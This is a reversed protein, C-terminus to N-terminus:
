VFNSFDAHNAPKPVIPPAGRPPRDGKNEDWVGKRTKKVMVNKKMVNLSQQQNTQDDFPQLLPTRQPPSRPYMGDTQDENIYLNKKKIGPQLKLIIKQQQMQTSKITESETRRQLQPMSEKSPNNLPDFVEIVLKPVRKETMVGRAETIVETQAYCDQKEEKYTYEFSDLTCMQLVPRAPFVPIPILDRLRREEINKMPSEKQTPPPSPAYEENVRKKGHPSVTTPRHPAPQQPPVQPAKVSQKTKINDCDDDFTYNQRKTSGIVSRNIHRIINAGKAEDPLDSIDVEASHTRKHSIMTNNTRMADTLNKRPKFDPTKHQESNFHTQKTPLDSDDHCSRPSKESREYTAQPSKSRNQKPSRARQGNLHELRAVSLFSCSICQCDKGWLVCADFVPDKRVQAKRMILNVAASDINVQPLLDKNEKIRYSFNESLPDNDLGDLVGLISFKFGRMLYSSQYASMKKFFICILQRAMNKMEEDDKSSNEIIKIIENSVLNNHNANKLFRCLLVLADDRELRIKFKTLYRLISLFLPSTGPNSNLYCIASKVLANNCDVLLGLNFVLSREHDDSADTLMLPLANTIIKKFDLEDPFVKFYQYLLDLTKCRQFNNLRTFDSSEWHIHFPKIAGPGHKDMICLFLYWPFAQQGPNKLLCSSFLAFIPLKEIHKTLLPLIKTSNEFIKTMEQPWYNFASSIAITSTIVRPSYPAEDDDLFSFLKETIESDETFFKLLMTNTSTFLQTMNSFIQPEETSLFVEIIELLRKKSVILQILEKNKMKYMSVIDECRLLARMEPKSQRILSSLNMIESM